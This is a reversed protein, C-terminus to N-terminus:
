LNLDHMTGAWAMKPMTVKMSAMAVQTVPKVCFDMKSKPHTETRRNQGDV